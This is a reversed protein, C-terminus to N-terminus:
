VSDLDAIPIHVLGLGVAGRRLLLQAQKPVGVTVVGDRCQTAGGLVMPREGQHEGLISRGLRQVLRQRRAPRGHPALVAEDAPGVFELWQKLGAHPDRRRMM